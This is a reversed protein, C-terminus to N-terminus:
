MRDVASQLEDFSSRLYRRTTEISTQGLLDRIQEIVTGAYELKKAFTYRLWHPSVGPIRSEAGLTSVIREIHRTSIRDSQKGTFLAMSIGPQRIDLWLALARRASPNLPLVREKSGKGNRVRVNGSRENITIDSLDLLTVEEVRLGAHLMCAVAAQDRVATQYEFETVAERTRRELRHVLYGYEQDTLSRYRSPRIGQEKPDVGDALDAYSDGHTSQIWQAFIRLAWLRSNWTNPAVRAEELSHQRYAHLDFNTLKEPSFAESFKAEWWLSFVRLHQIAAKVTKESPNRHAPSIRRYDQRLHAEFASPWDTSVTRKIDTQTQM